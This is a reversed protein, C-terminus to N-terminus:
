PAGTREYVRVYKNPDSFVLRWKEPYSSVVQRTFQAAPNILERPDEYILYRVPVSDLLRQGLRHQEFPPMVSKLNTRLYAWQPMSAAVVNDAQAHDAIWDLAKDLAIDPAGYWIQRYPVSSSRLQQLDGKEFRYTHAIKFSALQVSVLIGVVGIAAISAFLFYRESFRRKVWDLLARMSYCFALTFFPLIPAIYRHFQSPWPALAVVLVVAAVYLPILLEGRVLFLIIGALTFLGLCTLLISLLKNPLVDFGARSNVAQRILQWHGEKTTVAVGVREPLGQIHGVFRDTLFGATVYGLEPRFPDKYAMNSGYSVNYFMYAARQYPYAPVKYDSSNEVSRVYGTWILICAAAVFGRFLAPRLERRLLADGIWAAFLAVGITRTFFAFAAPLAAYYQGRTGPRWYYAFLFSVSGVAFPLESSVYGASIYFDPHLLGLSIALLAWASPLFKRMILYTVVGFASFLLFWTVKLLRGVVFPENSAALKQHLAIIAPVVPPYQIARADGPENLLRYGKGEALSTGTVYYVAADWRLDLPGERRPLWILMSLLLLGAICLQDKRSRLFVTRLPRANIQEAHTHPAEMNSITEVVARSLIAQWGTHYAALAVPCQAHLKVDGHRSQILFGADLLDNAPTQVCALM